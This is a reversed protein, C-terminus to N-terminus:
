GTAKHISQNTHLSIQTCAWCGQVSKRTPWGEKVGSQMPWEPPSKTPQEKTLSPQNQSRNTATVRPLNFATDSMAHVLWDPFNRMRTSTNEGFQDLRGEAQQALDKLRDEVDRFRAKMAHVMSTDVLHPAMNSDSYPRLWAVALNATSVHSCNHANEASWEPLYM